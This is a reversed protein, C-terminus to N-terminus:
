MFEYNNDKGYNGGDEEEDDFDMLKAAVSAKSANLKAGTAKKKPAPGKEEKQKQNFLVMCKTHIDEYELSTLKPYVQQLLEKVFEQIYKKRDGKMLIESTKKAFDIYAQETKLDQADTKEILGGFLDLTNKLDSQKSLQEDQKRQEATRPGKEDAFVEQYQKEKDDWKKSIANKKELKAVKEANKPQSQIIIEEKAELPIAEV